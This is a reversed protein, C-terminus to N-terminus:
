QSRAARPDGVTVGDLELTPATFDIVIVLELMNKYNDTVAIVYRGAQTIAGGNIVTYGDANDVDFAQTPENVTFTLATKAYLVGGVYNYSGTITYDVYNDLLVTFELTNGVSDKITFYYLTGSTLVTNMTYRSSSLSGSKATYYRVTVDSEDWRLYFSKNTAGDPQIEDGDSNLIYFAPLICDIEFTYEVYLSRDGSSYM